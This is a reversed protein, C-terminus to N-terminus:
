VGKEIRVFPVIIVRSRAPRWAAAPRTGTPAASVTPISSSVTHRSATGPVGEGRARSPATRARLSPPIGVPTISAGIM